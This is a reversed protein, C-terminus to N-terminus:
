KKGAAAKQVRRFREGPLIISNIRLGFKEGVKVAEGTAILRGGVDLELMEEYAKDFQIISGPGLELIRGLSQTKRALTVGVPVSIKLLSRTYHPLDRVSRPSSAGPRRPASPPSPPLPKEPAKAAAPQAAAPEVPAEVLAGAAVMGKPKAAPWVLHAVASKGDATVLQLPVRAAADALEAQAIAETLNAVSVATYEQPAHDEPLVTFALEQALTQLKSRGTPDPNGYWPPLLGSSEPLLVLAAEEGVTLVVMLGPGEVVGSLAARDVTDPGGVSLTVEVDFARQFASAADEATAKCAEVVQSVIEPKLQSM